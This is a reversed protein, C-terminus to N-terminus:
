FDWVWIQPVRGKVYEGRQDVKGISKQKEAGKRSRKLLEVFLGVGEEGLGGVEGEGERGRGFASYKIWKYMQGM